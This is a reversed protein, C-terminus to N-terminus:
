LVSVLKSGLKDIGPGPSVDKLTQGFTLHSSTIHLSKLHIEIRKLSSQHKMYCTLILFSFLCTPLYINTDLYLKNLNLLM